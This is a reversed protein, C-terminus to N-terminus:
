LACDPCYSVPLGDPRRLVPPDARRCIPCSRARLSQTDWKFEEDVFIQRFVEYDSSAGARMYVQNHTHRLTVRKLTRVSHGFKNALRGAMIKTASLATVAQYLRVTRYLRTILLGM